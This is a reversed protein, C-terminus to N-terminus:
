PRTTEDALAVRGGLIDVSVELLTREARFAHARMRALADPLDTRLAVMVMGQAQYVENRFDLVSALDPNLLGDAASDSSILLMETALETLALCRATGARDLRRPSDGFVTLVGFKAAGLHLPFAFVCCVGAEMAASSYGVWSAQRPDDLDAVLVPRGHAFADVSPGEGLSFELEAVARSSPDSAAAVAESGSTSRLTVVAGSVDMGSAAALCVQHLRSGIRGRDNTPQASM